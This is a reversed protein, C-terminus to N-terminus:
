AVRRDDPPRAADVAAQAATATDFWQVEETDVEGDEDWTLPINAAFCEPGEILTGVRLIEGTGLDETIDDRDGYPVNWDPGQETSYYALQTQEPKSLQTRETTTSALMFNSLMKVDPIGAM